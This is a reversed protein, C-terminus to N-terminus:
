RQCPLTRVPRLPTRPRMVSRRGDKARRDPHLSRRLVLWHAHGDAPNEDKAKVAFATWAYLREGKAGDGCSRREWQDRTKAYHLLDDARKVIVYDRVADRLREADWVSGNLLWQMRDATVHWARESLTWGNKEPLEALLGEIFQAFVARPEPRNFLYGLSGTLTALEAGWGAIQGATVGLMM